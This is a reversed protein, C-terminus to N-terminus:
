NKWPQNQAVMSNLITLLKRMCATLALKAPKGAKKLRQYFDKLVPNCRIASVPAMYLTSRVNARGGSTVRKGRHKGSDRCIPAVGVLSAIQRRNLVGLQPLDAVLTRGVV